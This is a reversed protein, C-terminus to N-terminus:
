AVLNFGSLYNETGTVISVNYESGDDGDITITYKGDMRARYVADIIFERYDEANCKTGHVIATMVMDRTMGYTDTNERVTVDLVEGANVATVNVRIAQAM